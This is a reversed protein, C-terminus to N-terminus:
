LSNSREDVTVKRPGLSKIEADLAGLNVTMQLRNKFSAAVADSGYLVSAVEEAQAYKIPIIRSESRAGEAEGAQLALLWPANTNAFILVLGLFLRKMFMGLVM